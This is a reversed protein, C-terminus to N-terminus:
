RLITWLYQHKIEKQLKGANKNGKSQNIFFNMCSFDPIHERYLEKMHLEVRIIKKSMKQLEAQRPKIWTQGM